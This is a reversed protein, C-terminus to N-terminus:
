AAQVDHWQPQVYHIQTRWVLGFQHGMEKSFRLSKNRKPVVKSTTIAQGLNKVMSRDCQVKFFDPHRLVNTSSRILVFFCQLIILHDTENDKCGQRQLFTTIAFWVSTHKKGKMSLKLITIWIQRKRLRWTVFHVNM